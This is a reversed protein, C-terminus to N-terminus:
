CGLQWSRPVPEPTFAPEGIGAKSRSACGEGHGTPPGWAAATIIQNLRSIWLYVALQLCSATQRLADMPPLLGHSLEEAGVDQSSTPLTSTSNAPTRAPKGGAWPEEKHGQLTAHGQAM